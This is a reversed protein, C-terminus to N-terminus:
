RGSATAITLRDGPKILNSRLRNLNKLSAVTTEFFRAIAFLTDCRRVSYVLRGGETSTRDDVVGADLTSVRTPRGPGTPILLRQGISLHANASLRNSAALDVRSMGLNRAVQWLSDGQKVTYWRPAVLEEPPAAALRQRFAGETGVPVKIAYNALKFPTMWRRLEPNLREIEETTTGTWEAVRALEIAQSVEVKAYRIPEDREVDLGYHSPDAGIIMAALALPVYQRTERPLFRRTSSITWYDRSGSRRIARRLRGPGANYAALALHWDGDFMGHLVRLYRAAARTAKEPDEREDIYWDQRLGYERATGRMFQWMGRARARSVAKPKFSSEVLPLHALSEPVGEARFIRTIMPLYRGSRALGQDVVDRSRVRLSEIASLVRPNLPLPVEPLRDPGDVVAPHIVSEVDFTVSALREDRAASRDAELEADDSLRWMEVLSVQDVVRDIQSAMRRDARENTSRRLLVALAEDFAARAQSLAGAIVLRRGRVVHAESTRVVADIDDVPLAHTPAASPPAPTAVPPTSRDSPGRPPTAKSACAGTLVLAVLALPVCTKCAM